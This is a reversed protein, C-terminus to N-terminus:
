CPIHLCLTGHGQIDGFKDHATCTHSMFMAIHVDNRQPQAHIQAQVHKFLSYVCKWERLSNTCTNSYHIHLAHCRKYTGIKICSYPMQENDNSRPLAHIQPRHTFMFLTYPLSKTALGHMCTRTHKADTVLLTYARPRQQPASCAPM